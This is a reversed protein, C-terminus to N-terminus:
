GYGRRPRLGAARHLIYKGPYRRGRIQYPAPGYGTGTHGFEVSMAAAIESGGTAGEVGSDVDVDVGLHILYDPKKYESWIFTRRGRAFKPDSLRATTHIANARAFVTMGGRMVGGQTTPHHAIASEVTPQGQYTQGTRNKFQRGLPVPAWRSLGDFWEIKGYSVM